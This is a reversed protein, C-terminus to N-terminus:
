RCLFGGPCAAAKPDTSPLDGPSRLRDFAAGGVGQLQVSLSRLHAEFPPFQVSHFWTDGRLCLYGEARCESARNHLGSVTSARSIVECRRRQLPLLFQYSPIVEPTVSLFRSTLLFRQSCLFLWLQAPRTRGSVLEVPVGAGGKDEDRMSILKHFGQGEEDLISILQYFSSVLPCFSQQTHM